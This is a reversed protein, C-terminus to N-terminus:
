GETKPDAAGSSAAGAADDGTAAPAAISFRGTARHETGAVRDELQLEATYEGPPFGALLVPGVGVVAQPKEFLQEPSRTLVESAENRIEFVAALAAAGTETATQAGYVFAVMNLSDSTQFVNGFRTALQNSGLTLAAYPDGPEPTHERMEEFLLVPSIVIGEGDFDAAEFGVRTISAKESARDVVGLRATYRGAPVTLPWACEFFGDEGVEASLPISGGSLPEGTASTAEVVLTLDVLQKHGDERATLGSADGRLLGAVYTAGEDSRMMLKTEAEMAFDQRATQLLGAAPDQRPLQDALSVLRGERIPYGLGKWSVRSAALTGLQDLFGPRIEPPLTCTEDFPILTEGGAFGEGRYIWDEPPRPGSSASGGQSRREAPEGLMVYVRGCDTEVGRGDPLQFREEAAALRTLYEARFANRPNPGEPDPDRRAWFIDRFVAKDGATLQSYVEREEDLLLPAVQALWAADDAAEQASGIGPGVLTLLAALSATRLQLM